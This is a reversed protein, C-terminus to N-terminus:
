GGADQSLRVGEGALRWRRLALGQMQRRFAREGGAYMRRMRVSMRGGIRGWEAWDGAHVRIHCSRCVDVLNGPDGDGGNCRPMRHHAETAEGGCYYCIMASM